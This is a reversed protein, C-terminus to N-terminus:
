IGSSDLLSYLKISVFASNLARVNSSRCFTLEWEVDYLNIGNEM